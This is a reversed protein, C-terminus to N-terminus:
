VNILGLVYVIIFCLNMRENSARVSCIPAHAASPTPSVKVTSPMVYLTVLVLGFSTATPSPSDGAILLFVVPVKSIGDKTFSVLLSSYETVLMPRLANSNDHSDEIVVELETVVMPSSANLLQRSKIETKMELEMTLM